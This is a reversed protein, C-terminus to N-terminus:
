SAGVANPPHAQSMGLGGTVPHLPVVLRCQTAKFHLGSDKEKTVQIGVIGSLGRFDFAFSHAIM